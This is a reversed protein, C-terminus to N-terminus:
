IPVFIQLACGKEPSSVINLRGNFLETRSAISSLGVGKKNNINDKNFGKGDDSVTLHVANDDLVLEIILNNAEAHRLVNNVQEQIIRFLMMKVKENLIEDIDGQHYFEVNLKRTFRINEVLDQISLILGLDSISPPVLSRSISRIENIANFINHNSRKILDLRQREDSEALELYLRTTSLIQNINDHLEKGIKERENEQADVVANTVLRQKELEQKMLKREMARLDTVDQMSGVMRTAKGERDFVLFGRDYVTRFKGSSNRFLYEHQWTENLGLELYRQLSQIVKKRDGPHICEEWFKLHDAIREAAYGFNTYFSEGFYMQGSQLDWDWLVDNTAKTALVYRENSAKIHAEAKKNDIIIGLLKSKRELMSLEKATPTKAQRHYAAITAIVESRSDLIPFSWCAGLEFRKALFLFNQWKPDRQIDTTIIPKKLYMATGCSGVLPGIEIGDLLVQMEEPFSPASIQTMSKRDDKLTLVSFRMGMFINELRELFYDVTSKLSANPLASVELVEKEFSLIREQEKRETIDRFYIFLGHSSPYASTEYWLNLETSYEESSFPQNNQMAKQYRGFLPYLGASPFVKLLNKGIIESAHIGTVEEIKRNWLLVNMKSDVAIFGDTISDLLNSVYESYQRLQKENKELEDRAERASTIDVISAVVADPINRNDSYYIPETNVSIWCVSGDRRTIGMIVKQFSKGTRLTTYFPQEDATLPAGQENCFSLGPIEPYQAIFASPMGFVREASHNVATMKGTGDVLVIGEGMSDVLSRYREESKRLAENYARKETIDKHIGAYGIHEGKENKIYSLSLQLYVTKGNPLIVYTEGEWYENKDLVKQAEERTNGIYYHTIIDRICRGTADAASVQYLDEAAKNWSVIRFETDTCILIDSITEMVQSQYRIKAEALRLSTIDKRTEWIRLLKGEEVIGIMNRLIHRTNGKRDKVVAEDNIIRFGAKVFRLFYERNCTDDLDMLEHMSVGTLQGSNEFGLLVAMQENCEALHGSSKYNSLIEEPATEVAIPNNTEIKWIAESSQQAFALYREQSAKITHIAEQLETIDQAFGITHIINRQDDFLCIASCSVWRYSGFSTSIRFILNNTSKGYTTVVGYIEAVLQLDDPHVITSFHNGLLNEPTHGMARDFEGSIYVFQGEPNLKFILETSHDIIEEFDHYISKCPGTLHNPIKPKQKYRSIENLTQIFFQPFHAIRTIRCRFWRDIGSIRYSQDWEFFEAGELRRCFAPVGEPFVIGPNLNSDNFKKDILELKSNFLALGDNLSLLTSAFGPENFFQEITRDTSSLFSREGAAPANGLSFAPDSNRNKLSSDSPCM